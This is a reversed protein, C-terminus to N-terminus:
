LNEKLSRLIDQGELLWDKARPACSDGLITDIFSLPKHGYLAKFPAMRILMHYMTKYYYEGLHIWKVWTRQASVYNRLYGELWKNVIETQGNTQLHYSTTPSLETGAM